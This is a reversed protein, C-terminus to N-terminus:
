MVREHMLNKRINKIRVVTKKPINFRKFLIIDDVFDILKEMDNTTRIIKDAQNFISKSVKTYPIPLRKFENPTLELVGGGYTRGGLESQILTLSNYFSFILSYIDHIKCRMNVRYATDTALINFENKVLKPYKHIRKFFYGEGTQLNPVVFWRGRERCKFRMHIDEKEGSKIYLSLKKGLNATKTLDVLYCSKQQDNILEFDSKKFNITNSVFTGKQLIPKSYQSIGLLSLENSSKLFFQNAGTVVGAASNCIEDIKPFGKTLKDIFSQNTSRIRSNTWKCNMPINKISDLHKFCLKKEKSSQLLTYHLGKNKSRKKCILVIVNQQLDIFVDENFKVVEIYQFRKALYNRISKAYCVQLLESPLIFAILGNDTLQNISHVVFALWLNHFDTIPLNNNEYLSRGKKLQKKSINNKKVFPPNGIILDFKHCKKSLSFDLFDSNQTSVNKIKSYKKQIKKLIRLNKEIAYVQANQGFIKIVSDVFSGEGASPELVKKPTNKKYFKVKLYNTVLLSIEEPTYYIGNKQKYM